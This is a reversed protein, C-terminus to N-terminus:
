NTEFARQFLLSFGEVLNHLDAPGMQIVSCWNSQPLFKATIPALDLESDVTNLIVRFAQFLKREAARSDSGADIGM